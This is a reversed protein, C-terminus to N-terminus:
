RSVISPESQDSCQHCRPRGPDATVAFITVSLDMRVQHLRICIDPLDTHGPDDVM